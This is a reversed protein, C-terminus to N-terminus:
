CQLLSDLEGRLELAMLDDCGGVHFNGVWIQPVTRQGSKVTMEHRLELDGDVLRDDYNVGKTDLLRRARICYPCFKTSYMKVEKM